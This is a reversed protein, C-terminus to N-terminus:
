RSEESSEELKRQRDLFALLDQFEEPTLQAAMNGPMLSKKEMRELVAIEAKDLMRLRGERDTLQISFNDENRIVGEIAKGSKLKLSVGAFGDVIEADPEM